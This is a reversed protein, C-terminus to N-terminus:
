DIVRTQICREDTLTRRELVIGTLTLEVIVDASRLVNQASIDAAYVAAATTPMLMFSRAHTFPLWGM